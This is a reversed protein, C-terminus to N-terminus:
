VESIELSALIRFKLFKSNQLNQFKLIKLGRRIQFKIFGHSKLARM